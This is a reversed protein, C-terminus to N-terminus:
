GMSKRGHLRPMRAADVGGCCIWRGARTKEPVTGRFFMGGRCIRRAAWPPGDSRSPCECQECSILYDPAHSFPSFVPSLGGPFDLPCAGPFDIVGVTSLPAGNGSRRTSRAKWGASFLPFLGELLELPARREAVSWSVAPSLGGFVGGSTPM